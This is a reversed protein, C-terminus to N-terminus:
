LQWVIVVVKKDFLDNFVDFGGAHGLPAGKSLGQRWGPLVSAVNVNM